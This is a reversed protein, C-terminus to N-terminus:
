EDQTINTLLPSLVDKAYDLWYYESIKQNEFYMMDKYNVEM